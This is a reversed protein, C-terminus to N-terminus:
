TLLKKCINFSVSLCKDIINKGFKPVIPIM